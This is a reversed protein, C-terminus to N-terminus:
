EREQNEAGASTTPLEPEAKDSAFMSLLFPPVVVMLAICKFKGQFELSIKLNQCLGDIKHQDMQHPIGSARRLKLLTDKM